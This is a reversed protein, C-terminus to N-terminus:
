RWFSMATTQGHVVSAKDPLSGGIESNLFDPTRIQRPVSPRPDFGSREIRVSAAQRMSAPRIVGSSARGMIVELPAHASPKSCLVPLMAVPRGASKTIRLGDMCGWFESMAAAAINSADVSTTEVNRPPRGKAPFKEQSVAVAQM